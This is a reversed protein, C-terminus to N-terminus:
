TAAHEAAPEAGAVATVPFIYQDEEAGIKDNNYSSHLVEWVIPQKHTFDFINM